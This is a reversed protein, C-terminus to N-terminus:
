MFPAFVQMVGAFIRYFFNRRMKNEQTILTSKSIVKEVDNFTDKMIVPDNLYVACEFQQYFSRLDMNVSGIAVANETLVMKAHVFSNNMTYVKVGYDILKEANSRTVGYVYAKDPVSPLILRVDVGSLAKSKLLNTITEDTIFYPTMIYIKERANSILNEYVTKGVPLAYELGDAYPIVISSNDFTSYLNLYKSYDEIPKGLFEWQSLFILTFKDVAPGKLKIACDKWYGHMKKENIYEDALNIGGTYAVKGDVVVIKRHDRYNMIVAFLPLLKNFPKIKVGMNILRKKAKRTLTKHCGMDDYILRVDVGQNVKDELAYCLRDFLVGESVIYFELFIFKKANKISELIDDFVSSGSSFYELKTSTYAEFGASSLFTADNRVALNNYNIGQKNTYKQVKLLVKESRKKARCFFIREDSLWYIIYGFSVGILIFIIWVAKSLGNKNSSLVYVCTILCLATNIIMFWKFGYYFSTQLYILFAVQVAIFFAVLLTKFVGWSSTETKIKVIKNEFSKGRLKWLGSSVSKRRM